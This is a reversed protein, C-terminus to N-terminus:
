QYFQLLLHLVPSLQHHLQNEDPRYVAGQMSLTISGTLIFHEAMKDVITKVFPDSELAKEISIKSVKKGVSGPKYVSQTILSQNQIM